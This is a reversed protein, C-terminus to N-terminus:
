CACGPPQHCTKNRSICSDGCPQGKSCHKCCSKGSGYPTKSSEKKSYESPSKQSGSDTTTPKCACSPSETGDSCILKGSSSCAGTPGGHRSCCGQQAYSSNVLLFLSLVVLSAWVKIQMYHEGISM